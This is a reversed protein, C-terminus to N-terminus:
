ERGTLPNCGLAHAYKRPQEFFRGAQSFAWVLLVAFALLQANLVPHKM